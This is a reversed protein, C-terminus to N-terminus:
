LELFSSIQAAAKLVDQYQEANDNALTKYTDKCDLAEVFKAILDRLSGGAWDIWHLDNFGDGLNTGLTASLKSEEWNFTIHLNLSERDNAASKEKYTVEFEFDTYDTNEQWCVFGFKSFEELQSASFGNDLFITAIVTKRIDLATNTKGSM